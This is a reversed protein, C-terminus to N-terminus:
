DRYDLAVSSQGDRQQRVCDLAERTAMWMAFSEQAFSDGLMDEALPRSSPAPLMVGDHLVRARVRGDDYQLLVRAGALGRQALIDAIEVLSHRVADATKRRLGWSGATTEVLQDIASGPNTHFDVDVEVRQVVLRLTLLHLAFAVTFGLTVPSLLAAPIYHGLQEPNGLALLGASLGLGVCAARRSDLVRSTMLTIGGALMVSSVFLLMAASVPGPLLVSISVLKPSCALALLLASGIYTARRSYARTAVSLGVCASSTGVGFGGMLASACTALYGALMGRRLPAMDPRVWSADTGRQYTLMDGLLSPAVCFSAIFFPLVLSWTVQGFAPLVPRPWAFWPEGSLLARAEPHGAMLAVAMGSGLLAGLIVAFRALRWFLCFCRCLVVLGATLTSM